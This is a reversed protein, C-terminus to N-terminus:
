HQISYVPFADRYINNMQEIKKDWSYFDKFRRQAEIGIIERFDNSRYIRELAVALDEVIRESTTVKVKIGCRDTIYDHPGAHDLCIM